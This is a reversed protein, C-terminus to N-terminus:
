ATKVIVVEHNAAIDSITHVGAVLGATVDVGNDYVKTPTGTITIALDEGAAVYRIGDVDSSIGTGQVMVNVSYYVAVHAKSEVWAIAAAETTFDQSVIRWDKSNCREIAFTVGENQFNVSQTKTSVNDNGLTARAKPYFYGKWYNVGNKRLSKYYALGGYPPTDDVNDVTDDGSLSKDFLTRTVADSMDDFAMALSGSSFEDVSEAVGDDAFLKGSMLTVSLNAEVLKGIVVGSSYTPLSSAPQTAIPAFCPHNCGIKSM